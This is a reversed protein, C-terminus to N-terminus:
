TGCKMLWSGSARASERDVTSQNRARGHETVAAAIADELCQNLTRFDDTSVHADMEVALGTITARCRRIIEERNLAIFERLPVNAM